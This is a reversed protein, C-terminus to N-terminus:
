RGRIVIFAAASVIALIVLVGWIRTADVPRFGLLACVGVFECGCDDCRYNFTGPFTRMWRRRPTRGFSHSKCQPCYM